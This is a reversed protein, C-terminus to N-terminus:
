HAAGPSVAGPISLGHLHLTLWTGELHFIPVERAPLKCARTVEISNPFDHWLIAGRRGLIQLANRSDSIVYDFLRCADVLALGMSARYPTYNFTRSDGFLQRIRGHANFRQYERGVEECPQLAAARDMESYGSPDTAPDRPPDFTFIEADPNLALHATTMGRFTGIEFIRRPSLWRVIRLLAYLDQATMGGCESNIPLM